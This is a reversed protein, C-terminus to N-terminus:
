QKQSAHMILRELGMGSILMREKKNQLLNQPWDVFGMDGVEFEADRYAAKIKCQLGTYYNSENPPEEEIINISNNKKIFDLIEGSFHMMQNEDNDKDCVRPWVIYRINKLWGLSELYENYFKITENLAEKEFIFNGEDRGSIVMSYLIFHPLQDPGRFKQARIHRHISCFRLRGTVPIKERKKLTCIHLALANTADSVVETGRLASIVNNQDVKAMVSCSGLISVPSLDLAKYGYSAAKELLVLSERCNYLPDIDSPKVFRNQDYQRMLEAPKVAKLRNRFFELLLTNIESMSLGSELQAFLDSIDKKELLKNIVSENQDPACSM